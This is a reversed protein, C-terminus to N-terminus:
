SIEVRVSNKIKIFEVFGLVLNPDFQRGGCRLIENIAESQSLTTKYPRETTMVDYADAISFLRCEIPIEEGKLGFPYGNGNWWEHHKLIQEAIPELEPSNRAIRYGIECHRKLESFEETNLVDPKFLISDSIGVKGIDHFQAMLWLNNVKHEPLGIIEAMGVMIEFLREAHGQAIFDKSKLAKILTKVIAEKTNHSKLLKKRYMNNDAEKFVEKMTKSNDRISYGISMSLPIKPNGENYEMIGHCIKIYASHIEEESSNETIIAFEDGGIRAALDGSILAKSIVAAAAKLLEDGDKHGLTDNILKLGDLDCIIIGSAKCRQDELQRMRDEFSTRNLLGTLSDHYSLYSLVKQVKISEEIENELKKVLRIDQAVVVVGVIQDTSDLIRTATLSIPVYEQMKTIIKYEGQCVLKLDMNETIEDYNLNIGQIFNDIHKGIIDQKKYATVKELALNESIIYGNCDLVLIIDKLEDFVSDASLVAQINFYHYKNFCHWIMIIWAIPFLHHMNPLRSSGIIFEFIFYVIGVTLTLGGSTLLILTIKWERLLKSKRYHIYVLFMGILAYTSYYIRKSIEYAIYYSSDINHVGFYGWRILIFICMPIYILKEHKRIAIYSISRSIFILHLLIASFSCAGLEAIKLLLEKQYVNQGSYIFVFPLSWISFSLCLGLFMKHEIIDKNDRYIIIGIYMYIYFGIFSFFSLVSM